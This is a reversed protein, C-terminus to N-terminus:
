RILGHDSGSFSVMGSGFTSVIDRRVGGLDTVYKPFGIFLARPSLCHSPLAASLPPSNRTAMNIAMPGAM